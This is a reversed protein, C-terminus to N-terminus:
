PVGGALDEPLKLAERLQKAKELMKAEEVQILLTGRANRPLFEKL